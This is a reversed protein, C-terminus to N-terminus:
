WSLLIKVFVKPNSSPSPILLTSRHTLAKWAAPSALPFLRFFCQPYKQLGAFLGSHSSPQSPPFSCYSIPTLPEHPPPLPCIVATFHLSNCLNSSLLSMVQCETWFSGRATINLINPHVRTPSSIFTPFGILLGQSVLSPILKSEILVTSSAPSTAPAKLVENKFQAMYM